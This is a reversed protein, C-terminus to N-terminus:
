GAGRTRPLESFFPPSHNVQFTFTDRQGAKHQKRHYKAPTGGHM